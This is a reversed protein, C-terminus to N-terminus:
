MTIDVISAGVERLRDTPMQSFMQAIHLFGRNIPNSVFERLDEPLEQFNKWAERMALLTGIHSDTELFYTMSQKVDSALIALEHMPIALEGLEYSQLIGQDIGSLESLDELTVEAQERAQRLLAGIMHNRLTIYEPQKTDRNDQADSVIDSGWFHSVPVDLYFALLELQPLAPVTDGYEWAEVEQPSVHLLRACDEVTRVAALRADRLLVGLMKGRIRYSEQFDYPADEGKQEDQKAKRAKMKAAIDEFSM